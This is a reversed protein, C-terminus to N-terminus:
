KRPSKPNKDGVKKWKKTATKEPDKEVKEPLHEDVHGHDESEHRNHADRKGKQAVAPARCDDIETQDPKHQVDGHATEDEFAASICRFM